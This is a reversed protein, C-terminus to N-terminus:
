LAGGAQSLDLTSIARGAERESDAAEPNPLIAPEGAVLPQEGATTREEEAPGCGFLGTSFLVLACGALFPKM